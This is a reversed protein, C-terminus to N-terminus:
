YNLTFEEEVAEIKEASEESFLKMGERKFSFKMNNIKIINKLAKASITLIPIITGNIVANVEGSKTKLL